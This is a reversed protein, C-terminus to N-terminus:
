RPGSPRLSIRSRPARTVWFGSPPFPREATTLAPGAPDPGPLHPPRGSPTLSRPRGPPAPRPVCQSGPRGAPQPDRAAVGTRNSPSLSRPAPPAPARPLPTGEGLVVRSPGPATQRPGRPNTRPQMGGCTDPQARGPLFLAGPARPLSFPARPPPAAAQPQAALLSPHGKVQPGLPHMQPGLSFPLAKAQNKRCNPYM